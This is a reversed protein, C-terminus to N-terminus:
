LGVGTLSLTRITTDGGGGGTFLELDHIGVNGTNSGTEGGGQTVFAYHYQHDTNNTLSETQTTGVQTTRSADSYVRGVANGGADDRDFECWYNTSTSLSVPGTYDVVSGGSRYEHVYFDASYFTIGYGNGADMDGDHSAYHHVGIDGSVDTNTFMRFSDTFDGAFFGAGYDENVRASVSEAITDWSVQTSTVTLDGGPDTETYTALYDVQAM